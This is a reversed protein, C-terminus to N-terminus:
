SELGRQNAHSAAEARNASCTKGFINSVHRFVTNVSIM